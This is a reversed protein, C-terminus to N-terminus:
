YKQDKRELADIGFWKCLLVALVGSNTLGATAGLLKLYDFDKEELRMQLKVGTEGPVIKAPLSRSPSDSPRGPSTGANWRLIRRLLGSATVHLLKAESDALLALHRPFHISIKTSEASSSTPIEKLTYDSPM